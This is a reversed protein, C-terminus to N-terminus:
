PRASCSFRCLPLLPKASVQSIQVASADRFTRNAVNDVARSEAFARVCTYAWCGVAVVATTWAFSSLTSARLAQQDQSTIPEDTMCEFTCLKGPSNAIITTQTSGRSHAMAPYAPQGRAPAAFAAGAPPGTPVRFGRRSRKSTSTASAPPTLRPRITDAVELDDCETVNLAIKGM